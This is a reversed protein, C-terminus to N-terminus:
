NWCEEATADAAVSNGDLNVTASNGLGGGTKTVRALRLVGHLEDMVAAAERVLLDDLQLFRRVIDGVALCRM